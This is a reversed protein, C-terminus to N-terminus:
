HNIAWFLFSILALTPFLMHGYRAWLKSPPGKPADEIAELFEGIVIIPGTLIMATFALLACGVVFVIPIFLVTLLIEM